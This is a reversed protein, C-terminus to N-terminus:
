WQGLGDDGEGRRRLRERELGLDGGRHAGVAYLPSSEVSSVIPVM